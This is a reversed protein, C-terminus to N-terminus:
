AARRLLAQLRRRQSYAVATLALAAAFWTGPEPVPVLEVMNGYFFETAGNTILGSGAGSYFSYNALQAQNLLPDSAFLL